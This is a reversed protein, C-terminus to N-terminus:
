EGEDSDLTIGPINVLQAEIEKCLRIPDFVEMDIYCAAGLYRAATSVGDALYKAMESPELSFLVFPIKAFRKRTKVWRLFEFVSAGNELHVDSIILDFEGNQLAKMAETFSNVLTLDYCARHLCDKVQEVEERHELLALIRPVM